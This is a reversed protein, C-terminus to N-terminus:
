PTAQDESQPSTTYLNPFLADRQEQDPKGFIRELSETLRAEVEPSPPALPKGVCSHIAESQCLPCGVNYM